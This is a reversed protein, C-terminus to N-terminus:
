GANVTGIDMRGIWKLFAEFATRVTHPINPQKWKGQFRVLTVPLIAVDIDQPAQINHHALIVLTRIGSKECADALREYGLRQGYPMATTGHKIEFIVFAKNQFDVFGDIDTPTIRGFRLGSFDKLQKACERDRIKGRNEDIVASRLLGVLGLLRRRSGRLM